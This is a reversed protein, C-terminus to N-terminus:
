PKRLRYAKIPLTASITAPNSAGSPSDVWIATNLNANEQLVYGPSGPNWSIRAQGFGLPVISLVPADASQAAFPLAWFGGVLAYQGGTMTTGADPQGITGTISYGGGSSAGGGGDMTFWDISYNQAPASVAIATALIALFAKM